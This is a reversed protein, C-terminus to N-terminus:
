ILPGRRAIMKGVWSGSNKNRGLSIKLIDKLLLNLLIDGNGEQSGQLCGKGPDCM